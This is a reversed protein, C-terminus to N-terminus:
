TNEHRLNQDEVSWGADWGYWSYSFGEYPNDTRKIGKIRAAQGIDFSDRRKRVAHSGTSVSVVSVTELKKNM